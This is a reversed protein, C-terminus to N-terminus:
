PTLASWAARAVAYGPSARVLGAGAGKIGGTSELVMTVVRSGDAITWDVAVVRPPAGDLLTGVAAIVAAALGDESVEGRGSAWRGDAATVTVELASTSEEIRVSELTTARSPASTPTRVITPEPSSAPAFLPLPAAPPVQGAAVRSRMGHAALVRQVEVGVPGADAGAALRVRVGAPSTGDGDVEAEAVGPLALLDDRLSDAAVAGEGKM